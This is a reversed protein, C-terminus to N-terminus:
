WVSNDYIATACLANEEFVFMVNYREFELTIVKGEPSGFLFFANDENIAEETFDFSGLQEKVSVVVDGIDFGFANEYSIIYTVGDDENAKKYYFDYNGTQILVDSKGEIVSYPAESSESEAEFWDKIEEVSTGIAYECEPIKGLNAYYEIDIDYDDSSTKANSCAAFSFILVFVLLISLIKKM